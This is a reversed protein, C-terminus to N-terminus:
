RLARRRRLWGLLGLGSLMLAWSQPEPVPQAANFGAIQMGAYDGVWENLTDGVPIQSRLPDILGEDDFRGLYKYFEYRIVVSPDGRPDVAKSVEDVFGPQLVQWEIEVEPAEGLAAVDPNEFAHHGGVLDSLDVPESLSTQVIKVWFANNQPVVPDVQQAQIVAVVPAGAVPPPAFDVAPIAVGAASLEGPNGTELLWNYTTRTPNGVTSVGFHDCPVNPYGVNGFAWCSEGPTSFVGSETGASWVGGSFSARYVIRVGNVQGSADFLDDISPLGYREVDGPSSTGFDRNLGFVDSVQSRSIGELEIEFGHATIGTDNVVDFNALSGFTSAAGAWAPLLTAAVAAALFTPRTM